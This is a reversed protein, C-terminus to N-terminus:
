TDQRCQQSRQFLGSKQVDHSSFEIGDVKFYSMCWNSLCGNEEDLNHFCVINM